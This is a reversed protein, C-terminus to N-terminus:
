TSNTYRNIKWNKLIKTLHLFSHNHFTNPTLFCSKEQYMHWLMPKTIQQKRDLKCPYKIKYPITYRYLQLSNCVPSLPLTRGQTAGAPVRANEEQTSYTPEESCYWPRTTQKAHTQWEENPNRKSVTTKLKSQSSFPIIRNSSRSPGGFANSCFQPATCQLWRGCSHEVMLLVVAMSCPLTTLQPVAATVTWFAM